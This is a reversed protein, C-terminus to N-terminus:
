PSLLFLNNGVEYVTNDNGGDSSMKEEMFELTANLEYGSSDHYYTFFYEADNVPDTPLAPLYETLDEEIWGIVYGTDTSFYSVGEAAPYTGNDLVFEDVARELTTLNALRKNDRARKQMEGPRGLTIIGGILLSLLVSVLLIEILSFGFQRSNRYPTKPEMVFTAPVM